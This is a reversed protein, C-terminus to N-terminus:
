REWGASWGTEIKWGSPSYKFPNTNYTAYALLAAPLLEEMSQGADPPHLM